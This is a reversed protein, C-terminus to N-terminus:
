VLLYETISNSKFPLNGIETAHDDICGIVMGM